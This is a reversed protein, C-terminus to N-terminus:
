SPSSGRRKAERVREGEIMEFSVESSALSCEDWEAENLTWYMEDEGQSHDRAFDEEAYSSELPGAYYDSLHEKCDAGPSFLPTLSPPSALTVKRRM